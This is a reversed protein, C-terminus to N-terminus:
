FHDVHQFSLLRVEHYDLHCYPRGDHEFSSVHELLENCVTCRFCQPHWRAGMASVIRGIIPGDCGGCILGGRQGAPRPRAQQRRAQQQPPPHSYSNTQNDDFEPGAISIGPVEYVQVVPANTNQSSSPEINIV